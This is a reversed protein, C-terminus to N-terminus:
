GKASPQLRALEAELIEGQEPQRKAIQQLISLAGRRQDETAATRALSVAATVHVVRGQEALRALLARGEQETEPSDLLSRALVLSKLEAILEAARTMKEAQAPDWSSNGLAARVEGIKGERAQVLAGYLPALEAYPSSADGLGALSKLLKERSEKLRTEAEAYKKTTDETVPTEGAKQASISELEDVARRFGELEVSVSQFIDASETMSGAWTEHFRSKLYWAALVAAVVVLCQKWYKLLSRFIPDEDLARAIAPDQFIDYGAPRQPEEVIQEQQKLGAEKGQTECKINSIM